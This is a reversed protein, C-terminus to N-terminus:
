NEATNNRTATFLHLSSNLVSSVGRRGSSTLLAQSVRNTPIAVSVGLWDVGHVSHTRTEIHGHDKDIFRLSELGTTAPDAFYRAVERPSIASSPWSM